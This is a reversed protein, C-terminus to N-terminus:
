SPCHGSCMHSILEACRGKRVGLHFEFRDQRSTVLSFVLSRQNKCCFKCACLDERHPQVSALNTQSSQPDEFSLIKFRCLCINITQLYVCKYPVNRRRGGCLLFEWQLTDQLMDSMSVFCASITPNKERSWMALSHEKNKSKQYKDRGKKEM